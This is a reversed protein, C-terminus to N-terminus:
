GFRWNNASLEHLIVFPSGNRPVVCIGPREFGSVDATFNTAFKFYDPSTFALADVQERDMLDRMLKERHERTQQGVGVRHGQFGPRPLASPTSEPSPHNM